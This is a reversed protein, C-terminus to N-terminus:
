NENIIEELKCMYWHAKEIDERGNKLPARSIYKIINAVLAAQDGPYLRAIQLIYDITEIEGQRYHSPNIPDNM